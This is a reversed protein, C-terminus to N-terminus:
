AKSDTLDRFLRHECQADSCRECMWKWAIQGTSPAAPARLLQRDITRLAADLRADGQGLVLTFGIGARVLVERLRQDFCQRAAEGDRQFGDAVWPLDCGCLLTLAYARQQAIATPYLSTDNFLLDSYLATILPTTDCIVWDHQQLAAQIAHQQAAAIRAQEDARPTRQHLDCWNRLHEDVCFAHHGRSQLALTLQQALTSKGTCEAGLIAIARSAPLTHM